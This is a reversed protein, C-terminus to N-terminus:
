WNYFSCTGDGRLRPTRSTWPAVNLGSFSSSGTCWVADYAWNPDSNFTREAPNWGVGGGASNDVIYSPNLGSTISVKNAGAFYGIWIAGGFYDAYNQQVDIGKLTATATTSEPNLYLGGGSSYLATNYHFQTDTVTLSGSGVWSLAGGSEQSTNGYFRGRTINVTMSGHLAVGGGTVISYNGDVYVDTMNLTRANGTTNPFSWIAGRNFYNIEAGDGLIVNNLSLSGSYQCIGSHGDGEPKAVLAIDRVTLNSGGTFLAAPYQCVYYNPGSAPFGYNRGSITSSIRGNSLIGRITLSGGSSPVHLM